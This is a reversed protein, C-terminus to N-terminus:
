EINECCVGDATNDNSSVLSDLM